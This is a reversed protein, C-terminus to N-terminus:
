SISGVALGAFAHVDNSGDEYETVVHSIPTGEDNNTTIESGVYDEREVARIRASNKPLESGTVEVFPALIGKLARCSHMPVHPRYEKTVHTLSCSPCQWHKEANFIHVM